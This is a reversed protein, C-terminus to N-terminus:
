TTEDTVIYEYYPPGNLVVEHIMLILNEVKVLQDKTYSQDTRLVYTHNFPYDKGRERVIAYKHDSVSSLVANSDVYPTECFPKEEVM